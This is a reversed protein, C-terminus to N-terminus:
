PCDVVCAGGVNVIKAFISSEPIGYIKSVASKYAFIQGSYGSLLEKNDLRALNTKFDVVCVSAIKGDPHSDILLRDFIGSWRLNGEIVDFPYETLATRGPYPKFLDRVIDNKLCNKVLASIDPIIRRNTVCARVLADIDNGTTTFKVREFVSHVGRGFEKFDFYEGYEDFDREFPDSVHRRSLSSPAQATETLPEVGMAKTETIKELKALGREEVGKGTFEKFWDKEGFAIYTKREAFDCEKSVPKLSEWLHNEFSYKTEGTKGTKKGSPLIFYLAHKARTLGVYFMCIKDYAGNSEMSKLSKSLVPSFGALIRPPKGLVIEKGGCGTLKLMELKGSHPRKNETEPLIVINYDLGKAKHFTIVQIDSRKSSERLKYNKVFEVFSDTDGYGMSDFQGAASLLPVARERTFGDSCFGLKELGSVLGGIFKAFGGSGIESLVRLRWGDSKIWDALPTMAVYAEAANDLPHAAARILELVAPVLMNDTAIESDVEGGVSIGIKRTEIITRLGEVVEALTDNRQVIVACSLDREWPRVENIIKFVAEAISEEDRRRLLMSCGIDGRNTKHEEWVNFWREAANEDFKLKKLLERDSFVKNVTDIVPRSSRWSEVLPPANHMRGHFEEFVEDFLKSDGGRWTYLSQKVDGVYYFTRSEDDQLSPNILDKLVNWQARSTDQFEDLLWHKYKADLRYEVLEKAFKSSANLSAESLLVSMDFFSLAGKSRVRESYLDDVARLIKGVASIKKIEVRFAPNMLLSLMEFVLNLQHPSAKLEKCEPYEGDERLPFIGKSLMDRVIGLKESDSALSCDRSKRFFTRLTALPHRSKEKVADAPLSSEFKKLLTSYKEDDWEKLPVVPNLIEASFKQKFLDSNERYFAYGSNVYESLINFVGSKSNGRNARLVTNFFNDLGDGLMDRLMRKLVVVRFKGEEFSDLIKIPGSIGIETAFASLLRKEFSDITSLCLRPLKSVIKRLLALFDKKGLIEPAGIEALQESLIKEETEDISAKALKSLIKEIFEATAARTFTLTCISSPDCNLSLAIFRNTLAYTKGSGASAMVRENRFISPANKSM